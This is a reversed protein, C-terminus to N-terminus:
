PPIWRTKQGGIGDIAWTSSSQWHLQWGLRNRCLLTLVHDNQLLGINIPSWTMKELYMKPEELFYAALGGYCSGRFKKISPGCNSNNWDQPGFFILLVRAVWAAWSVRIERLWTVFRVKAQLLVYSTVVCVVFSCLGGQLGSLVTQLAPPVKSVGTRPPGM